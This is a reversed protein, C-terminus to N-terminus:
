APDGGDGASETGADAATETEAPAAEAEAPKTGAVAAEAERIGLLLEIEKQADEIESDALRPDAVLLIDGSRRHEYIHVSTGDPAQRVGREVLARKRELFVALLYIAAAHNEPEPGEILERLLTEPSAKKIPDEPAAPPPEYPSSWVSIWPGKGLARRCDACFDARVYEPRPKPTEGASRAAEEEAIAAAFLELALDSSSPLVASHVREGAEFQRNCRTCARSRSRLNWDIRAM